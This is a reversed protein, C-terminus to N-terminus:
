SVLMLTNCVYEVVGTRIRVFQVCRNRDCKVSMSELSKFNLMWTIPILGLYSYNLFGRFEVLSYVLPFM